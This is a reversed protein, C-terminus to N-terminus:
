NTRWEEMYGDTRWEDMGMLDENKWVGMLEENRWIGMKTRWEEMGWRSWSKWKHIAIINMKMCRWEEMYGNLEENKWVWDDDIRKM